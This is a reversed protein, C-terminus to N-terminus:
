LKKIVKDLVGGDELEGEENVNGFIFGTFDMRWKTLAVGGVVGGM